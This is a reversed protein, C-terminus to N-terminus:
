FLKKFKLIKVFTKEGQFFLVFCVWQYYSHYQVEDGIVYDAVGPHAVESGVSGNIKKIVTFTEQIWCFSNVYDQNLKEVHCSIPHGFFQQSSVITSFVILLTATAETSFWFIRDYIQHDDRKFSKQIKRLSKLM